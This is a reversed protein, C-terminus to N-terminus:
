FQILFAPCAMSNRIHFKEYMVKLLGYTYESDKDSYKKTSYFQEHNLNKSFRGLWANKQGNFVKGELSTKKPLYLYKELPKNLSIYKDVFYDFSEEANTVLIEYLKKTYDEYLDIRLDNPNRCVRLLFPKLNQKVQFTGTKDGIDLISLESCFQEYSCKRFEIQTVM